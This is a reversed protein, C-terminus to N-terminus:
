MAGVSVKIIRGKRWGEPITEGRKIVRSCAGDTIWCSGYMSNKAGKQHKNAEMTKKRKANAESGAALKGIAALHKVNEPSNRWQAAAARSEASFIGTGRDRTTSGGRIRAEAPCRYGGLRRANDGPSRGGETLNYVDPRTLFEPTVLEAERAYMDEESDFFELIKKEFVELGHMAQAAKILTGSGMYGDELNETRHVGIYIKHDILNEIQYLYYYM